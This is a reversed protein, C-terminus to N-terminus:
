ELYAISLKEYRIRRGNSEEDGSFETGFFVYGAVNKRSIDLPGVCTDNIFFLALDDRVLLRLRNLSGASRNFQEIHGQALTEGALDGNKESGQALFFHWDGSSDVYLRYQQNAGSSRFGFGYDWPKGPGAPPNEIWVESVFNRVGQAVYSVEMHDDNQEVLYGDPLRRATRALKTMADAALRAVRDVSSASLSWVRLSEYRAGKGQIRNGALLNAALHADGEGSLKSLNLAGVYLDNVFFLGTPGKVFLALRNKEAPSTNFGEVKGKMLTAIQSSGDAFDLRWIGESDVYLRYNQSRAARFLFGYSWSADGYPAPNNFVVDTAFDRDNILVPGLGISKLKGDEIIGSAPAHVPLSSRILADAALKALRADTPRLDEVKEEPDAAGVEEAFPGRGAAWLMFVGTILAALVTGFCGWEMKGM